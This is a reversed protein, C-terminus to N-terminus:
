LINCVSIVVRDKCILGVSPTFDKSVASGDGHEEVRLTRMPNHLGQYVCAITTSPSSQSCTITSATSPSKAVVDDCENLGDVFVFVHQELTCIADSFFVDQLKADIGSSYKRKSGRAELYHYFPGQNASEPKDIISDLRPVYTAGM